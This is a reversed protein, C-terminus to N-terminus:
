RLPSGLGVQRAKYVIGMGGRGLEGEIQYGPVSPWEALRASPLVPPDGDVWEPGDRSTARAEDARPAIM